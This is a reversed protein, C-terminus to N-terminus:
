ALTEILDWEAWLEGEAKNSSGLLYGNQLWAFLSENVDSTAKASLNLTLEEPQKQHSSL